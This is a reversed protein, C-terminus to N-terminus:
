AERLKNRYDIEIMEEAPVAFLVVDGALQDMVAQLGMAVAFMNTIQINHGCCHAAGTLDDARPHRPCLIADLEGVMAVTYKSDRGKMRGKVGTLAHGTTYSIGLEDFMAQVKKSTKVEKFGLEPEAMISEALERLRPQADVIAKCVYQKVEEKTMRSMIDGKYFRGYLIRDIM